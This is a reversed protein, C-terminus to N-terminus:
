AEAELKRQLRADAARKARPNTVDPCLWRTLHDAFAKDPLRKRDIPGCRRRM